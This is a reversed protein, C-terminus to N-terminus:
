FDPKFRESSCNEISICLPNKKKEFVNDNTEILSPQDWFKPCFNVKLQKFKKCSMKKLFNIGQHTM